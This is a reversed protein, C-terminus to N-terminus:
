RANNGYSEKWGKVFYYLGAGFMLVAFVVGFMQGAAYASNTGLSFKGTILQLFNTLLMSGGWFLGIAGFILNRM